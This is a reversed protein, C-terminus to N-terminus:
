GGGALAQATQMEADAWAASDRDRKEVLADRFAVVADEILVLGVEDVFTGDCCECTV